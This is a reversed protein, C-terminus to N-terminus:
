SFSYYNLHLLMETYVIKIPCNDCKGDTFIPKVLTSVEEIYLMVYMKNRLVELL